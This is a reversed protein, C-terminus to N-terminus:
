RSTRFRSWSVTEGAPGGRIVLTHVGASLGDLSVPLYLSDDDGAPAKLSGSSERKGAANLIEYSYSELSAKPSPFRVVYFPAGPPLLNVDGAGRANGPAFYARTLQPEAAQRAGNLVVYALGGALAVNAASSFALAPRLRLWERWKHWFGSRPPEAAPQKARQERSAARVNAAFTLEFRIEDACPKCDFFHEEFADREEPSLEKAVYRAAAHSRTAEDHEM